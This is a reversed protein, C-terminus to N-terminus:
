LSKIIAEDDTSCEICLDDLDDISQSESKNEFNDPGSCCFEYLDCNSCTELLEAVVLKYEM